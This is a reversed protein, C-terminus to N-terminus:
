VHCTREPSSISGVWVDVTSVGCVGTVALPHSPSQNGDKPLVSGDGNPCPVFDVCLPCYPGGGRLTVSRSSVKTVVFSM